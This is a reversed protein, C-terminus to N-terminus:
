IERAIRAGEYIAEKATRPELADGILFFNPFSERISRALDRSPSAGKALVVHDCEISWEKGYTGLIVRDTKIEMTKANTLMKVGYNELRKLLYRRMTQELDKGIMDSQSAITVEHGKEALFEATECGVMGGGAIVVKKGVKAKGTLVDWSSFVNKSDVGPINPIYSIAGTAVILEDPKEKEIFPAKVEIRCHIEVGLKEIQTTLYNILGRIEQKHPPIIALNLQGGLRDSKEYLIVRHGRLSAVRAAEMGAPGGGVIMVKKPIRAKKIEFEKERGVCANVLCEMPRRTFLTHL